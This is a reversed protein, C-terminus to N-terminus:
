EDLLKTMIQEPIKHEIYDSYHEDHYNKVYDYMDANFGQFRTIAGSFNSFTFVSDSLQSNFDLMMAYRADSFSNSTQLYSEIRVIIPDYRVYFNSWFKEALEY